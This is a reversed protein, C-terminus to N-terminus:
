GQGQQELYGLQDGLDMIAQGDKRYALLDVEFSQKNKSLQRSREIISVDTLEGKLTDGLPKGEVDHLNYGTIKEFASNIWEVKGNGDNIVVGSTTNSAVLSLMKLEEDAKKRETIDIMAGVQREVDGAENLLPSNSISVWIPTKDKKYIKLEVEYPKKEKVAKVAANFVTRDTDEGILTNGFKKGKMEDLTYGVIHEMAENMWIIAGKWRTDADRNTIQTAAFSLIELDKEATKRATIDAIVRIYKEVNGDGDFIVSNNISLWIKQKDKRCAYVYAKYSQKQAILRNYQELYTAREAKGLVFDSLKRNKADAFSFGTM